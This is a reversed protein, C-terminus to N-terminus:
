RPCSQVGAAQVDRSPSRARSRAACHHSLESCSISARRFTAPGRSVTIGSFATRARSLVGQHLGDPSRRAVLGPVSYQPRPRTELAYTVVNQAAASLSLDAPLGLCAVHSHRSAEEIAAKGLKREEAMPRIVAERELATGWDSDPASEWQRWAQM